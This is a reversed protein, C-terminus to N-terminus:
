TFPNENDDPPIRHKWGSTTCSRTLGKRELAERGETELERHDVM